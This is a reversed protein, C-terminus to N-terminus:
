LYRKKENFSINGCGFFNKIKVMLDQDRKLMEITFAINFATKKRYDKYMSFYGEGEVLGTVFLPNVSLYALSSDLPYDSFHL